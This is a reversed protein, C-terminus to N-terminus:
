EVAVIYDYVRQGGHHIEVELDVFASELFAQLQEAEQASVDEGYLVTVVEDEDTVIKEFLQRAAEKREKSSYIIESGQIAMYDGKRINLGNVKSDRVAYT